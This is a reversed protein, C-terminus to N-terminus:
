HLTVKMWVHVVCPMRDQSILMMVLGRMPPLTKDNIAGSVVEGGWWHLKCTSPAAVAGGTGRADGSIACEVMRVMQSIAVYTYIVVVLLITYCM